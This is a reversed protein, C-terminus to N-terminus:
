WLSQSPVQEFDTSPKEMGLRGHCGEKVQEVGNKESEIIGGIPGGRNPFDTGGCLAEETLHNFV